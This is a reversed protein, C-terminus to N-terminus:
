VFGYKGQGHTDLFTMLSIAQFVVIDWAVREDVWYKGFGDCAFRWFWFDEEYGDVTSSKRRM